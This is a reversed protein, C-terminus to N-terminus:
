SHQFNPKFFIPFLFFSLLFHLSSVSCATQASSLQFIAGGFSFTDSRLTPTMRVSSTFGPNITFHATISISCSSLLRSEPNHFFFAKWEDGEEEIIIYLSTYIRELDEDIKRVKGWNLLCLCNDWWKEDYYLSCTLVISSICTPM